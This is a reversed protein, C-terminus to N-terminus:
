ALQGRVVTCITALLVPGQPGRTLILMGPSSPSHGSGLSGQTSWVALHRNAAPCLMTNGPGTQPEGGLEAGGKM